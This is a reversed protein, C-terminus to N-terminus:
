GDRQKQERCKWDDTEVGEVAPCVYEYQDYNRDMDFRDMFEAGTGDCVAEPQDPIFCGVQYYDARVYGQRELSAVTPANVDIVPTYPAEDAFRVVDQNVPETTPDADSSCASLGLPLFLLPWLRM